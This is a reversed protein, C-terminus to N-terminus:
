AVEKVFLVKDTNSFDKWIRSWAARGFAFIKKCDEAKALIEIAENMEKSWAKMRKGGLFQIDLFKQSGQRFSVLACGMLKGDVTATLIFRNEAIVDKLISESDDIDFSQDVAPKLLEWVNSWADAAIAPNLLSVKVSM